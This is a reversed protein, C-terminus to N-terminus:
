TCHDLKPLLTSIKKLTGLCGVRFTLNVTFIPQSHTEQIYFMTWDQISFFSHRLFSTFIHMEVGTFWRLLHHHIEDTNDQFSLCPRDPFDAVYQKLQEQELFRLSRWDTELKQLQCDRLYHKSQLPFREARADNTSFSQTALLTHAASSFKRSTGFPSVVSATTSIAFTVFSLSSTPSFFFLYRLFGTSRAIGQFSQWGKSLGVLKIPPRTSWSPHESMSLAM